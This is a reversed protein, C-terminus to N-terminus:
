FLLVEVDYCDFLGGLGFHNDSVERVLVSKNEKGEVGKGEGELEEKRGWALWSIRM